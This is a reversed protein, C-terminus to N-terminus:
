RGLRRQPRLHRHAGTPGTYALAWFTIGPTDFTTRFSERDPSVEIYPVPTGDDDFAPETDRDTWADPVAVILTQTDDVVYNYDPPLEDSSTAGAPAAVTATAVIGLAAIAALAHRPKMAVTQVMMVPSTHRLSRHHASPRARLQSGHGDIRGTAENPTVYRSRM